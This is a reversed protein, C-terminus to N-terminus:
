QGHLLFHSFFARIWWPNQLFNTKILIDVILIFEFGPKNPLALVKFTSEYKCSALKFTSLNHKIDGVACM